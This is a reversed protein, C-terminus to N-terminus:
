SLGLFGGLLSFSSIIEFPLADWPNVVRMEVSCACFSITTQCVFFFWNINSSEVRLVFEPSESARILYYLTIPRAPAVGFDDLKTTPSNLCFNRMSLLFSAMLPRREIIRTLMFGVENCVTSSEGDKACGTICWVLGAWTLLKDSTWILQDM